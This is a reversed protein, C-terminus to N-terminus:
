VGDGRDEYTIIIRRYDPENKSTELQYTVKADLLKCISDILNKAIADKHSQKM